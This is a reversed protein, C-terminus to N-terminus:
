GKYELQEYVYAQNSGVQGALVATLPVSLYAAISDGVALSLVADFPLSLNGDSVQPAQFCQKALAGNHWIQTALLQGAPSALLISGSIRYIGAWPAVFYKDTANWMGTPDFEVTDFVIPNTGVAITNQEGAYVSAVAVGATDPVWGAGATDPDSTNSDVINRWYGAGSAMFVRAGKPYGGIATSFAASYPFGGGACMWVDVASMQYLGGNMDERNPPVGGVSADVSCLPPFGDTYSAAGPTIGIQSPVPIPNTKTSDGNGWPLVLQAPAGSLNM